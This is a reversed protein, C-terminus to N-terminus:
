QKINIIRNASDVDVKLGYLNLLDKESLYSMGGSLSVPIANGDVLARLNKEDWEINKNLANAFSRVPILLERNQYDVYDSTFIFKGNLKFINGIMKVTDTKEDIVFKIGTINSVDNVSIYEKSDKEILKVNKLKEDGLGLYTKIDNLNVNLNGDDTKFIDNSVLEYNDILAYGQSFVVVDKNINKYLKDFREEAINIANQDLIKKIASKTNIGKKYVDPYVFLAKGSSPSYKIFITQYVVNVADGYRVVNFLEEVDKEYMRICGLSALTGISAPANNGHIGYDSYFGIWRYGLPNDPGPLVPKGGWPPYWIPNILKSIVHYYGLPTNSLIKGVAIPYFKKIDKSEFFITRTPINVTITNVAAYAINISFLVICCALM